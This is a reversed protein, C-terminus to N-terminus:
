VDMIAKRQAGDMSVLAGTVFSARESALFVVMNAVEEATCLRGMPISRIARQNAETESIGKDRAMTRVLGWWRETDVPGPNIANVLIGHPALEEAIALTFNIGAANAAGPTLEFYIPKIGDNGIVNIIRGWRRERMHPIAAKATRVYGLFKLNLSEMWDQESLHQLTGGPSSGACNVLIDLRGFHRVATDVFRQADEERNLDAVIPVVTRGTQQAVELAVRELLDKGRACIAVDAGEHALGAACAKGIGMSGGTVLAVRGSLGLDM